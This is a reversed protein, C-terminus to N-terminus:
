AYPRARAIRNHLARMRETLVYLESEELDYAMTLFWAIRRDEAISLDRKGTETIEMQLLRRDDPNRLLRVLGARELGLVLEYTSQRSRKLGHALQSVSLVRPSRAIRTLANWQEVSLDVKKCIAEEAANLSSAAGRIAETLYGIMKRRQQPKSPIAM